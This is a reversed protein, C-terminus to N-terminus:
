QIDATTFTAEFTNAETEYAIVVEGEKLTITGTKVDAWSSEEWSTGNFGSDDGLDYEAIRFFSFEGSSPFTFDDPPSCDCMSWCGQQTFFLGSLFGISLLPLGILLKKMKAEKTAMAWFVLKRSRLSLM